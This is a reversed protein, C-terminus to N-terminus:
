ALLPNVVHGVFLVVGTTDERILFVFPHDVIFSCDTSSGLSAGVMMLVASAAAVETGEEQVEVVSRHFIFSVYLMPPDGIVLGTNNSGSRRCM